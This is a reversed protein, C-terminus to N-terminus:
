YYTYKYPRYTLLKILSVAAYVASDMLRVLVLDKCPKKKRFSSESVEKAICKGNCTSKPM